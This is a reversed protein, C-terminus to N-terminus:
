TADSLLEKIKQLFQDLEFPKEVYYIHRKELEKIPPVASVFLTPVDQLGGAKHLQDYLELGNMQPLQYDLLFLAPKITRVISMARFADTALIISYSAEDRLTQIFFQGMLEDDEVILITKGISEGQEGEEDYAKRYSADM